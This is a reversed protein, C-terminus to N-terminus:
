GGFMKKLNEFGAEYIGSIAAVADGEPAGKAEFESSWEVACGKGSDRVKLTATYNSVPLPGSVITYTYRREKDDIQELKEEITGGGMLSLQRLTNGNEKKLKSKEVAPHWDPLANFNGIVAWVTKASVPLEATSSVKAM